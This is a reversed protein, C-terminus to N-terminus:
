TLQNGALNIGNLRFQYRETHAHEIKPFMDTECYATLLLDTLSYVTGLIIGHYHKVLSNQQRQSILKRSPKGNRWDCM